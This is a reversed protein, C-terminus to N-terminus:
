KLPEPNQIGHPHEAGAYVKLKKFISQGLTGKPLMGRVAAEVMETPKRQILHRASEARLGGIYGSHHYYMKQDLKRGTLQVKEANVIVVFDGTDMHPTFTPKNKGRLVTAAKVALKGLVMDTADILVWKREIDAEKAM